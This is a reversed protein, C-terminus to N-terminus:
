MLRHAPPLKGKLSPPYLTTPLDRISAGSPLRSSQYLVHPASRHSSYTEHGYRPSLKIAAVSNITNNPEIGAMRGINLPVAKSIGAIISIKINHAAATIRRMERVSPILAVCPLTNGAPICATIAINPIAHIPSVKMLPFMVSSVPEISPITRWIGQNNPRANNTM